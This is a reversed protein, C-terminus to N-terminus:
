KTAGPWFTGGPRVGFIAQGVRVVTAGEEVAIEFDGTMGMSLGAIRPDAKVAADRLHALQSFCDRVRSRDTNLMALTMLGRPRLRSFQRIGELFEPLESPDLGYKSEEGSTNVQIFVDLDRDLEALSQNLAKALRQSDLAHFSSAFRVVQKVKNTQLHGIMNWSCSLDRLQDQKQDAEQVKNEAFVTIGAAYALRLVHVPVTKTVALLQVEESSRGVRSCAQGIRDQVMRFNAAFSSCPDSGFRAIDAADLMSREGGTDDNIGIELVVVGSVLGSLGQLYGEWAELHM